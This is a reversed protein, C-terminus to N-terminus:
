SCPKLTQALVRNRKRRHLLVCSFQVGFGPPSPTSTFNAWSPACGSDQTSHFILNLGTAPAGLVHRKQVHQPPPPVVSTRM